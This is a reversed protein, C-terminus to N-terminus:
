WHSPKIYLKSVLMGKLAYRESVPQYNLASYYKDFLPISNRGLRCFTNFFSYLTWIVFRSMWKMFSSHSSVNFDSFLWIGKRNLHGDLKQMVMGLEDDSFCDLVFPTIIADAKVSADIGSYSNNIFEIKPLMGPYKKQVKKKAKAIMKDSVDVFYYKELNTKEILKLLINGSGGGFILISKSYLLHSFFCTQSHMLSKGFFLGAFFDYVPALLNFGRKAKRIDM